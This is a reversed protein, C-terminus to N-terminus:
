RMLFKMRYYDVGGIITSSVFFYVLISLINDFRVFNTLYNLLIMAVLMIIPKVLMVMFPNYVMARFYFPRSITALFGVLSLCAAYIVANTWSSCDVFKILLGLSSIYIFFTSIISILISFLTKIISRKNTPGKIQRKLEKFIEEPSSNEDSLLKELKELDDNNVKEEDKVDKNDM